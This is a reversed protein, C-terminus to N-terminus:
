QSIFKAVIVAGIAALLTDIFVVLPLLLFSLLTSIGAGFPAVKPFLVWSVILLLASFSSGLFGALAGAAAAQKLTIPRKKIKELALAAIAGAVLPMACVIPVFVLSILDYKPFLLVSLESIAFFGALLIAGVISAVLYEAIKRLMGAPIFSLMSEDTVQQVKITPLEIVM